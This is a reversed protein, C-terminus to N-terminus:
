AFTASFFRLQRVKYWIAGDAWFVFAGDGCCIDTRRDEKIVKTGAEGDIGITVYRFAKADLPLNIAITTYAKPPAPSTTKVPTTTPITVIIDCVRIESIIGDVWSKSPPIQFSCRRGISPELMSYNPLRFTVLLFSHTHNFFTEKNLLPIKENRHLLLSFTM